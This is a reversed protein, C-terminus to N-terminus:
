PGEGTTGSLHRQGCLAASLHQSVRNRGGSVHLADLLLTAAGLDSPKENEKQQRKGGAALGDEVMKIQLQVFRGCTDGGVEQTYNPIESGAAKRLLFMKVIIKRVEQM